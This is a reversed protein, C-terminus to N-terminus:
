LRNSTLVKKSHCALLKLYNSPFTAKIYAVMIIIEFPVVSCLPAM